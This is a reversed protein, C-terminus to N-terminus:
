FKKEDTTKATEGSGTTTGSPTAGVNEIWGKASVSIDTGSKHITLVIDKDSEAYTNSTTTFTEGIVAHLEDALEAPTVDTKFKITANDTADVNKITIMTGDTVKTNIAENAMAIKTANAIEAIASNDKQLRTREVYRLYQPALVVMLVAMIAVVVILEVLSFGKNNTKKM